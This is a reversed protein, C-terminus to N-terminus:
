ECLRDVLKNHKRKRYAVILLVASLATVIGTNFLNYWMQEGTVSVYLLALSAVFTLSGIFADTRWPKFTSNVLVHGEETIEIGTVEIEPPIPRSTPTPTSTEDHTDSTKSADSM